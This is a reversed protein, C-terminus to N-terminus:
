SINRRSKRANLSLVIHQGPAMLSKGVFNPRDGFLKATGVQMRGRALPPYLSIRWLLGGMPLSNYIAVASNQSM